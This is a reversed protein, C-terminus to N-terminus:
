LSHSPIPHRQESHSAFISPDSPNWLVLGFQVCAYWDEPGRDEHAQELYFSAFDVNNGSPFFLM